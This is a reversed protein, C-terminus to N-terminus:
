ARVEKINWSDVEEQAKFMCAYEECTGMLNEHKGVAVIKGDNMIIIQEANVITNLHHAITIVTKGKSLNYIAEQILQENYPDIAATAEDLIIIPANKLITRAIAIRQKEGGSLKAGSEGVITEYGHPLSQIMDHICAKKAAEIVEQMTADKNGIRINEAISTNFLFTDQQVISILESLQKQSMENTNQGAITITGDQPKWFGMILNAITSKGSGSGGIIANVTGKKFTVSINELVENKGDYSFSINNLVINGNEVQQIVTKEEEPLEGLVSCISEASAKLIIGAHHFSMYRTVSGSFLNSLILALVFAPMSLNGILMLRVGVIVMLVIGLEMILQGISLPASIAIMMKRIWKIYDKMNQKVIDTRKEESSFAKIASITGIYEVVDENMRKTSAFYQNMGKRWAVKCLLQYIISIPVPLIMAFAMRWDILFLIIAIGAILFTSVKLEPQAHALYGEIQEVDNDIINSLDGAKRKQFFSLPLKKMHQIIELRIEALSRYAWFHAKWIGLAYFIAKLIQSACIGISVGILINLTMKGQQFLSLMWVVLFTTILGAGVSVIMHISSVKNSKKIRRIFRRKDM